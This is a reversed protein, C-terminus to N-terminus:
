RIHYEIIKHKHLESKYQKLYNIFEKVENYTIVKGKKETIREKNLDVKM